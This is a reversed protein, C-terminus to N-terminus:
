CKSRHFRKLEQLLSVSSCYFARGNLPLLQKWGPAHALAAEMYLLACHKGATSFMTNVLHTPGLAREASPLKNKATDEILNRLLRLVESLLSSALYRPCMSSLSARRRM